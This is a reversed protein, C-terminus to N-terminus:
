QIKIYRMAEEYANAAPIIFSNGDFDTIPGFACGFGSLEGSTWEWKIYDEDFRANKGLDAGESGTHERKITGDDFFTIRDRHTFNSDEEWTGVFKSFEAVIEGETGVDAENDSESNSDNINKFALIEDGYLTFGDESIGISTSRSMDGDTITLWEGDCEYAYMFTEGADFIELDMDNVFMYILSDNTQCVWTGILPNDDSVTKNNEELESGLSNAIENGDSSSNSVEEKVSNDKEFVLEVDNLVFSFRDGSIQVDFSYSSDGENITLRNGDLNYSHKITEDISFVELDTDNVFTYILYDYTLCKWTGILVNDSPNTIDNSVVNNKNTTSNSEDYSSVVGSNQAPIGEKQTGCAVLSLAMVACLLIALIKKM